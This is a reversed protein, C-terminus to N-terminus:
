TLLAVQRSRVAVTEENGRILLLVFAAGILPLAILISLLNPIESM